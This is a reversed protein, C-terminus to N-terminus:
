TTAWTTASWCTRLRVDPSPPPPPSPTLPHPPAHTLSPTPHPHSSTPSPSPARPFLDIPANSVSPHLHLASVGLDGTAIAWFEPAQGVCEGRRVAAGRPFRGRLFRPLAGRDRAGSRAHPQRGVHRGTSPPPFLSFVRPRLSRVLGCGEPSGGTRFCGEVAVRCAALRSQWAGAALCLASLCGRIQERVQAMPNVYMHELCVTQSFLPKNHLRACRDGHRCAGM